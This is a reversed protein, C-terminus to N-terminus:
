ENEGEREINIITAEKPKELDIQIKLKCEGTPEPIGGLLVCVEPDLNSATVIKEIVRKKGIVGM